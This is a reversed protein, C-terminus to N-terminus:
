FTHSRKKAPGSNARATEARTRKQGGYPFPRMEEVRRLARHRIAPESKRYARARSPETEGIQSRRWESRCDAMRHVLQFLMSKRPGGAGLLYGIRSSSGRWGHRPEM